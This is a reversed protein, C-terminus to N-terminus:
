ILRRVTTLSQYVYEEECIFVYAAYDNYERLLLNVFNLATWRHYHIVHTVLTNRDVFHLAHLSFTVSIERALARAMKRGLDLCVGASSYHM